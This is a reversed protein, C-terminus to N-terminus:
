KEEKPPYLKMRLRTGGGLETQPQTLLGRLRCQLWRASKGDLLGPASIDIGYVEAM